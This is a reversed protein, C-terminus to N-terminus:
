IYNRNQDKFYFSDIEFLQSLGYKVLFKEGPVNETLVTIKM